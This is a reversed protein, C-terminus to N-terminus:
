EKPKQKEQEKMVEIAKIEAKLRQLFAYIPAQPPLARSQTILYEEIREKSEKLQGLRYLAFARNWSLAGFKPLRREAISYCSDADEFKGLGMLSTCSCLWADPDNPLKSLVESCLRQSDEFDRSQLALAALNLRSDVNAASLKSARRWSLLADGLKGQRYYLIGLNNHLGANGKNKELLRLLILHAMEYQGADMHATALNELLFPHEPNQDLLTKLGKVADSKHGLLRKLNLAEIKENLSTPVGLDELRHSLRESDYRYESPARRTYLGTKSSQDFGSVGEIDEHGKRVVPESKTPSSSSCGGLLVVFVMGCLIRCVTM